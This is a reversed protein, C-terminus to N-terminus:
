AEKLPPRYEPKALPMPADEPEANSTPAHEEKLPHQGRGRTPTIDPDSGEDSM